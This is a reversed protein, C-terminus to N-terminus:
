DGPEYIVVSDELYSGFIGYGGEINTYEPMIGRFLDIYIGDDSDYVKEHVENYFTFNEAYTYLNRDATVLTFYTSHESSKWSPFNESEFRAISDTIDYNFNYDKRTAGYEFIFHTAVFQYQDGSPIEWSGTFIFDDYYDGDFLVSVTSLEWDDEWIAAVEPVTTSASVSPYGDVSVFLQYSEGKTIEFDDKSCSYNSVSDNSLELRISDNRTINFLWVEADFLYVVELDKTNEIDIPLTHAVFVTVDKGPTIAGYVVLKADEELSPFDIETREMCSQLLFCLILLLPFAYYVTNQKKLFIIKFM